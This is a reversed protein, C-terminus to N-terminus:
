SPVTFPFSFFIYAARTQDLKWQQIVFVRKSQTHLVPDLYRAQPTAPLLTVPKKQKWPLWQLPSGWPGGSLFLGKPAAHIQSFPHDLSTEPTIDVPGNGQLLPFWIMRQQPLQSNQLLLALRQPKWWAGDLLQKGEPLQQPGSWRQRPQQELQIHQTPSGCSLRLALLADGENTLSYFPADQSPTARTPSGFPQANELELPLEWLAFPRDQPITNPEEGFPGKVTMRLAYQRESQTIQLHHLHGSFAKHHAKGRPTGKPSLPYLSIVSQWAAQSRKPCRLPSFHLPPDGPLQRFTAFALLAGDPSLSPYRVIQHGDNHLNIDFLPLTKEITENAKPTVLLLAQKGDKPQYIRFFYFFNRPIDKQPLRDVRLSPLWHSKGDALIQPQELLKQLTAPAKWRQPWLQLYVQASSSPSSLKLQFGWTQRIKECRQDCRGWQELQDLSALVEKIYHYYWGLQFVGDRASIQEKTQICQHKTAQHILKLYKEWRATSPPSIPEKPAPPTWPDFPQTPRPKPPPALSQLCSICVDNKPDQCRAICGSRHLKELDTRQPRTYFNVAWVQQCWGYDKLARQAKQLLETQAKAIHGQLQKQQKPFAEHCWAKQKQSSPPAALRWSRWPQKIALPLWSPTSALGNVYRAPLLAQLWAPLGQGSLVQPRKNPSSPQKTAARLPPSSSPTCLQRHLTSLKRLGLLGQELGYQPREQPPPLTQLQEKWRQLEQLGAQATQHQWSQQAVDIELLLLLLLLLSAFSAFFLRRPWRSKRRKRPAELDTLEERVDDSFRLLLMQSDLPHHHKEQSM